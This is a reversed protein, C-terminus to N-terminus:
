FDMAFPFFFAPISPWPKPLLGLQQEKRKRQTPYEVPSTIWIDELIFM